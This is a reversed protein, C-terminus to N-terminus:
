KRENVRKLINDSKSYYNFFKNYQLKPVNNLVVGIIQASARELQEKTAKFSKKSVKGSALVVLSGDTIAAVLAADIVTNVPSTDFIIFDFKDREEKVFDSFANSDLLESSFPTKVGCPIYFLNKINTDYIINEINVNGLLFDTLGQNISKGTKKAVEPKRLDADVLLVKKNTYALSIGLNIAVTTKGEKPISSIVSITKINNDQNSFGINSRLVKYAEWIPETIKDYFNYTDSM